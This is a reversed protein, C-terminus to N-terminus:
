QAGEAKAIAARAAEWHPRFEHAVSGNAGAKATLLLLMEACALLEPAAAILRANAKQENISVDRLSIRAVLPTGTAGIGVDSTAQPWDNISWPGPTHKSNM